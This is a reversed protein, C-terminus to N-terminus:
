DYGREKSINHLKRLDNECQLLRIRLDALVADTHRQYASQVMGLIAVIVGLVLHQISTDM